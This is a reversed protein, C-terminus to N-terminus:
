QPAHRGGLREIRSSKRGRKRGGRNPANRLAQGGQASRGARGAVARAGGRWAAAREGRRRRRSRAALCEDPLSVGTHCGVRRVVCRGKEDRVCVACREDGAGKVGRGGHGNGRAAAGPAVRRGAPVVDALEAADGPVPELVTREVLRAARREGPRRAPAGGRRRRGIDAPQAANGAVPDLLADAELRAGRGNPKRDRPGPHSIRNM